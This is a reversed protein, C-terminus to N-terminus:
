NGDGSEKKKRRGVEREREERCEVRRRNSKREKRTMQRELSRRKNLLLGRWAARAVVKVPKCGLKERKEGMGVKKRQRRRALGGKPKDREGESSLSTALM